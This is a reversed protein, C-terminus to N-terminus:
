AAAEARRHEVDDPTVGFLNPMLLLVTAALTDTGDNLRPPDRRRRSRARLLTGEAATTFLEAVDRWSLGRQPKLRYIDEVIEAYIDAWQTLAAEELRNVYNQIRADNPLTAQVLTQVAILPDALASALEAQAGQRVLDALTLTRAMEILRPRMQERVRRVYPGTRYLYALLDDTFRPLRQWTHVWRNVSLQEAEDRNEIMLAAHQALREGSANQFILVEDRERAFSPDLNNRYILHLALDCFAKSRWDRACAERTRKTSGVCVQTFVTALDEQEEGATYGLWRDWEDWNRQPKRV